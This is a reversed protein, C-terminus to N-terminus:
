SGGEVEQLLQYLTAGCRGCVWRGPSVMVASQHAAPCRPIRIGTKFTARVNLTPLERGSGPGKPRQPM